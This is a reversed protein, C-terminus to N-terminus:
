LIEYGNRVPIEGTHDAAAYGMKEGSALSAVPWLLFGLIPRMPRPSVLQNYGASWLTDMVLVEKKGALPPKCHLEERESRGAAPAVQVVDDGPAGPVGYM